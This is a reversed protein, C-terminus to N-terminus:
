LIVIVNDSKLRIQLYDRNMAYYVNKGKADGGFGLWEM